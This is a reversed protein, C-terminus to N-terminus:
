LILNASFIDWAKYHSEKRGIFDRIEDIAIQAKTNSKYLGFVSSGSGSVLVGKPETQSFLQKVESIEPALSEASNELDNNLHDAADFVLANLLRSKIKKECKTLGLNLKKYVMQTSLSFGPYILLVIFPLSNSYAQLVEGIGKAIAPKEFIFFPVDAGLELGIPLLEEQSYPHNYHSNLMKLITAANSSGGGLGAGVPIKKELHISFGNLLKKKIKKQYLNLFLDAAKYVLNTEDDPVGPHDCSVTRGNECFEITILDYLSIPCMLTNLTHYGDPRKGTVYLFLNIKAPSKAKM